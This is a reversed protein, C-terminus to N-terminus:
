NVSQHRFVCGRSCPYALGWMGALSLLGMPRVVIRNHTGSTESLPLLLHLLFLGDDGGEYFFFSVNFSGLDHRFEKLVMEEIGELLLEVHFELLSDVAVVSYLWLGQM